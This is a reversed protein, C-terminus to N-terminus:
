CSDSVTVCPPAHKAQLVAQRDMARSEIVSDVLAVDAVMGARARENLFAAYALGATSYTGTRSILGLDRARRAM